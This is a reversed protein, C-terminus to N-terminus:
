HLRVEVRAPIRIDGYPEYQVPAIVATCRDRVAQIVGAALSLAHDKGPCPRIGYGFTLDSTQRRGPDFQGPAVGSVAPDRNASDVRVLVTRGAPLLRGDLRAGRRSVRRTVRLPPDHRIVEAMIAETPWAQHRTGAPPLAHCITKGILAATADCAQVLVAIKAVITDEDAPSLLRVLEATTVDAARDRAEPAGPFYAAATVCVAAAAHETDTIGLWGALVTVPVRRALAAMVELRGQRSAADILTHALSEAGARLAAPDIRDLEAVVQTLRRAHDPGNSFRSVSSRLWGISGVSGIAPAEPVEYSPDALVARADGRRTVIWGAGPSYAPPGVAPVALPELADQPSLDISTM